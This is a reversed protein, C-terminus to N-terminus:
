AAETGLPQRKVPGSHEARVPQGHPTGGRGSVALGAALINKAANVDAHAEYGCAGCVFVAQSKRNQPATHGCHSCRQSTFAPPVAVVAVPATACAAKDELRRRFASFAVSSIARNLGAKQRVRRGPAEVTGRASRLMNKVLLDEVCVVDYDRVLATTSKEIFDKRRDAEKAALRAIQHKTRERRKSGKQQRALKRELRRKRQTEGPSLLRPMVSHEGDSTTFASVVGMDLGVVAGTGTREFPKPPTTFSVHWRQARDLTVRASTGGAIEAWARTIRFRVWGLKPVQVEGWRRNIRRTKLDRVAFGEHIGAKRWSPRGFHSPNRWFNKFARDLDFLAQQQVSSSGEGLWTDKRAQALSRQQAHASISPMGRRWYGRQELGLNWVYRAHACHMHLVALDEQAPYLRERISVPGINHRRHLM